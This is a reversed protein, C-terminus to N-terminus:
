TECVRTYKLQGTGCVGVLCCLLRRTHDFFIDKSAPTIKTVQSIQFSRLAQTKSPCATEGTFRQTGISSSHFDHCSAPKVVERQTTYHTRPNEGTTTTYLPNREKKNHYCATEERCEKLGTFEKKGRLINRGTIASGAFFQSLFFSKIFMSMLCKLSKKIFTLMNFSNFFSLHM